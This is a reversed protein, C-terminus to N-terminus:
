RRRAQQHAYLVLAVVPLSGLLVIAALGGYAGRAGYNLLMIGAFSAGFSGVGFSLLNSFGFGLSRRSPTVYKAVLSNYIPQHMFITLSFCSAAVIRLWGDALAMWLLMPANALVVLLNIRELHRPKAIYGATMQGIVGVLLVGGAWYNGEADMQSLTEGATGRWQAMAETLYRPLFTLVAAYVFGLMAGGSTLLLLPTWRFPPEPLAAAHPSVAAPTRRHDTLVRALLLALVVGPIMLGFYYQRWSAGLDLLVAAALPAAAIGVSGFVGHLGLALPREDPTTVHSIYALGAPHYISAFVGMSFMSIFLMALDTSVGALGCAAACGLLYIVLLRHSGFRDALWGALLAGFGFPFRWCNALVGMTAEGVHFDRAILQETSPLSLEYVHVMAHACSVLLVARLTASNM